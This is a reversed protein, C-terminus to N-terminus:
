ESSSETPESADPVDPLLRVEIDDYGDIVLHEVTYTYVRDGDTITLVTSGLKSMSVRIMATKPAYTLIQVSGYSSDELEVVAESSLVPQDPLDMRKEFIMQSSGSGFGGSAILMMVIAAIVAGTGALRQWARDFFAYLYLAIQGFCFIVAVLHDPFAAVTMRAYTVGMASLLVLMPSLILLSIWDRRRLYWGVFAMPFTLLTPIIWNRYYLFIRFGDFYFPVQFLYILPQSILFFVFTKIASELPSKCNVMIIIAILVWAELYTGAEWFSTGNFIPVVLFMATLLASGVALLIVKVWSMRIGGFLHDTVRRLPSKAKEM